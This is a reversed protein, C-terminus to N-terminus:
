SDVGVSLGGWHPDPRGTAYAAGLNALWTLSDELGGPRNRGLWLARYRRVLADLDEGLRAREDAPVSGISGDGRLRARLDHVLLTILDISFVVEDVLRNGDPRGSRASLVARRSSALCEDVADLQEATLGTTLGRGVDLQPYYLNMVLTSM